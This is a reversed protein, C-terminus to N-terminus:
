GMQAVTEALTMRELLDDWWAALPLGPDKSSLEIEGIAWTPRTPKWTLM